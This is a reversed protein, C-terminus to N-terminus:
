RRSKAILLLAIILVSGLVTPWWLWGPLGTLRLLVKTVVIMAIISWAAYYWGWWGDLRARQAALGATIVLVLSLLLLINLDFFNSIFGPKLWELAAALVTTLSVSVTVELLLRHWNHQDSWVM